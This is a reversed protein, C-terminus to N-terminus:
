DWFFDALHFTTAIWNKTYFVYILNKWLLWIKIRNLIIKKSLCKWLFVTHFLHDECIIGKFTQSLKPSAFNYPKEIIEMINQYVVKDMFYLSRRLYQKGCTWNNWLLIITNIINYVKSSISYTWHRQQTISSYM